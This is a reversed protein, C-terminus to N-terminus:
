FPIDDDSPMTSQQRHQEPKEQEVPKVRRGGTFHVKQAIIQTMRKTEGDSTQWKNERIEGEVFLMDGKSVHEGCIEATKGFAVINHWETGKNGGPEWRDTAMSFKCIPKGDATFKLDPDRGLRGLLLVINM